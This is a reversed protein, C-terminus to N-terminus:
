FPAVTEQKTGAVEPLPIFDAPIKKLGKDRMYKNKYKREM